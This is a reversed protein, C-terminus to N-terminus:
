DGDEDQDWALDALFDQDAQEEATLQTYPRWHHDSSRERIRACEEEIRAIEATPPPIDGNLISNAEAALKARTVGRRQSMAALLDVIRKEGNDLQQDRAKNDQAKRVEADFVALGREIARVIFENDSVRALTAAEALRADLDRSMRVLRAKRGSERIKSM